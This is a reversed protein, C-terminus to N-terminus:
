QQAAFESGSLLLKVTEQANFIEIDDPVNQGITIYSIPAGTYLRLNLLSGLTTTEDIKTFILSYRTIKDYADATSKLDRYKTTASLVLYVEKDVSYDLGALLDAVGDKQGTNHPSHGATDVLIYDCKSFDRVASQLEAPTYIIRFPVELINAYTRLQEAAAIRYTDATLLAIKKDEEVKFSSALKAITTTKGVGTPGIFFIVKPGHSAETITEPDGFKLVLRQYVVGLLHDLPTNPKVNAELDEILEGAYQEDVENELMMQYLLRFFAINSDDTDPDYGYGDGSMVAAQRIPGDVQRSLVEHLSSLREDYQEESRSMAARENLGPRVEDDYEIEQRAARREAAPKSASVAARGAPKSGAEYVAAANQMKAATAHERSEKEAAGGEESSRALRSVAEVAGKLDDQASQRGKKLEEEELAVTVEKLQRRFISFLGKKRINRVNMIVIGEGLEKRAAATAEEETKGTFKKIIM